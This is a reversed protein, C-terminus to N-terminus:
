RVRDADMEASINLMGVKPVNGQVCSDRSDSLLIAGSLFRGPADMRLEIRRSTSAISRPDNKQSDVSSCIDM